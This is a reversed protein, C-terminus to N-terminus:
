IVGEPDLVRPGRADTEARDFRDYAHALLLGALPGTFPLGVGCPLAGLFLLGYAAGGVALHGGWSGAPMKLSWWLPKVHGVDPRDVCLFPVPWFLLFVGGYVAVPILYGLLMLAIMGGGPPGGGAGDFILYMAGVTPIAALVYAFVAVIVSCLMMRWIGPPRFLTSLEPRGRVAELHLGALGLTMWSNVVVIAVFLLVMWGVMIVGIVVENPPGGGGGAAAMGVIMAVGLGMYLTFFTGFSIAIALLVSALLIGFHEKWDEFAATWVSGLTVETPGSRGEHRLRDDPRDGLDGLLEGCSPCAVADPSSREGCVPCLIAADRDDDGGDEALPANPVRVRDGCQPCDAEAGAKSIPARLSKGCTECHFEIKPSTM